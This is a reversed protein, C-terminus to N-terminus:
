AHRVNYKPTSLRNSHRGAHSNKKPIRVIEDGRARCPPTGDRGHKLDLGLHVLRFLSPSYHRRRLGFFHGVVDDIKKLKTNPASLKMLKASSDFTIWRMLVQVLSDTQSKFM